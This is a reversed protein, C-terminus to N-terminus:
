ERKFNYGVSKAWHPFYNSTLYLRTHEHIELGSHTLLSIICTINKFVFSLLILQEALLVGLNLKFTLPGLFVSPKIPFVSLLIHHCRKNRSSLGASMVNFNGYWLLLTLNGNNKPNYLLDLHYIFIFTAYLWFQRSIFRLGYEFDRREFLVDPIRYPQSTVVICDGLCYEGFLQHLFVFFVCTFTFGWVHLM